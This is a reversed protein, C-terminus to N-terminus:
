IIQFSATTALNVCFNTIEDEYGQFMQTLSFLLVIGLNSQVYMEM